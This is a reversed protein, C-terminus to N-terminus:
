SKGDSATQKEMQVDPLTLSKGDFIIRFDQQQLRTLADPNQDFDFKWEANNLGKVLGNTDIVRGPTEFKINVTFGSMIPALFALEKGDPIADPVRTDRPKAAPKYLLYSGDHRRTLNFGNEPFFDAQALKNIASFTLRIEVFRWGNRANINLKILSIGLYKYKEARTKIKKEDPDMMLTVFDDDVDSLASGSALAMQQKLKTMAKMQNISAESISYNVDLSGSGDAKITLTPSAKICGSLLAALIIICINLM